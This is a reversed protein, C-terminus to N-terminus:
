THRMFTSIADQSEPKITDAVAILGALKRDVVVMMVTKGEGQLSRIQDKADDFNVGMQDFWSPKGVLAEQGNIKARM